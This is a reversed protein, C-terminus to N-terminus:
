RGGMFTYISLWMVLLRGSSTAGPGSGPWASGGLVSSEVAVTNGFGMNYAAAENKTITRKLWIDLPAPPQVPITGMM